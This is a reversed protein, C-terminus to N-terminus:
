LARERRVVSRVYDKIESWVPAYPKASAVISVIEWDTTDHTGLDIEGKSGPAYAFFMLDISNDPEQFKDTLPIEIFRTQSGAPFDKDWLVFPNYSLWFGNERVGVAIREMGKPDFTVALMLKQAFVPQGIYVDVHALTELVRTTGNSAPFPIGDISEVISLDRPGRALTQSTVVAIVSALIVFAIILGTSIRQKM